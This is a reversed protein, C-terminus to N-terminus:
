SPSSVTDAEVNPPVPVEETPPHVRYCDRGAHKAEYLAADARALVIEATEFPVAQTIGISLTLNLDPKLPPLARIAQQIRDLVKAADQFSAQPLVLLFEDGGYRGVSDYDRLRSTFTQAIHRLAADGSAHGFTDNVSKFHDLDVLAISPAMRTRKASGLEFALKQEIGRRNLAGSVHDEFSQTELASMLEGSLMLLFLLGIICVFIVNLVLAASQVMDRHMFNAPSGYFLTLAIRVLGEATYIAMITGFLKILRRDDAHRFLTITILLRIPFIAIEAIVIRSVVDPHAIGYYSMPLTSLGIIAWVCYLWFRQKVYFFRLLGDYFQAFGGLILANAVVISLLNSISGRAVMLCCGVIGIAFGTSFAGAGRLRPHMRKMGLLVLAFVSGTMIQCGILTRNDVWSFLSM